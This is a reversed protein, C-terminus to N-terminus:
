PFPRERIAELLETPTWPGIWGPCSARRFPCQACPETLDFRM